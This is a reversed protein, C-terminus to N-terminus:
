KLHNLLSSVMKSLHDLKELIDAYLKSDDQIFKLEKAAMEHLSEDSDLMERVEAEERALKELVSAFYSTRHDKKLEELDLNM